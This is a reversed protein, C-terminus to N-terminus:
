LAKIKKVVTNIGLALLCISKYLGKTHKNVYLYSGKTLLHNKSKDHGVFHIYSYRPLFVRKYGADAIKKCLDVDEVYMFYDEDFGGVQAYVKKPIFMLSGTLWDVEYQGKSFNGTKFAVGMNFMSKMRFLSSPNPFKGVSPLYEAEGNLMKIGAVGITRDQKVTELVPSLNDQLITDNNILLLYEGKAHKVGENNGKGFGLNKGTELLVIGPYNEKIYTCSSDSSDNDVVIIEFAIGELKAYLSDFCDKLYKLGNYNVIIVSLEPTM